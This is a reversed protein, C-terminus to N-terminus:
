MLGHKRLVYELPATGGAFPNGKALTISGQQWRVVLKKSSSTVRYAREVTVDSLPALATGADNLLQRAALDFVCLTQLDRPLRQTTKKHYSILLLFVVGFVIAIASLIYGATRLEASAIFFSGAILPLFTILGVVFLATALWPAPHRKIVLKDQDQYIICGSAQALLKAASM